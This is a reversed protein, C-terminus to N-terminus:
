PKVGPKLFPDGGFYEDAVEKPAGAALLKNRWPMVQQAIYDESHGETRFKDIQWKDPAYWQPVYSNILNRM